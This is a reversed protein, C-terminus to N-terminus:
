LGRIKQKQTTEQEYFENKVKSTVKKGLARALEDALKECGKGKFGILDIEITGDTNVICEIEKM